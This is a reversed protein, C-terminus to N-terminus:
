KQQLTEIIAKAMSISSAPNQGTILNGDVMIYDGWNKAGCTYNAGYKRLTSALLWPANDATGFEIEEADSFSTMKRGKFLWNGKSDVASLFAAQGHCVAGIIKKSNDAAFLVKGMDADKYLDEVPGHGGPIIVADYDKMEVNSLPIPNSLTKNLAELYSKFFVAKEAGVTKAELSKPDATPKKAGPTAIDVTYGAEAFEKHVDVFEETWYGTPYKSGDARTWTDAASLVILVRKTGKNQQAFANVSAVFISLLLTLHKISFLNKM